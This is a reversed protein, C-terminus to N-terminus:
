LWRWRFFLCSSIAQGGSFVALSRYFLYFAYDRDGMIKYIFQGAQFSLRIKLTIILFVIVKKNMDLM